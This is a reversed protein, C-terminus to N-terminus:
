FPLDVDDGGRRVPDQVQPLPPGGDVRLERGSHHGGGGGREAPTRSGAVTRPFRSAQRVRPSTSCLYRGDLSEMSGTGGSTTVQIPEGGEASVKWVEDQGTRNSFFYVWRGDRSWGPAGDVSPATTLRKVFGGSVDVVYVDFSGEKPCWFAIQEGDPSWSPAFLAPDDLFTLQRANSGDLGTRPHRREEGDSATGRGRRARDRLHRRGM